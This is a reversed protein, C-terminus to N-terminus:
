FADISLPGSLSVRNLFVPFLVSVFVLVVVLIPVWSVRIDTGVVHYMGDKSAFNGDFGFSFSLELLYSAEIHVARITQDSVRFERGPRMSLDGEIHLVLPGSDWLWPMKRQDQIGADVADPELAHEDIPAAGNIDM